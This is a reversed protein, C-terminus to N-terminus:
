QYRQVRAQDFTKPASTAFRKKLACAAQMFKRAEVNTRGSPDDRQTSWGLTEGFVWLPVCQDQLKYNWDSIAIQLNLQLRRTRKSYSKVATLTASSANFLINPTAFLFFFFV